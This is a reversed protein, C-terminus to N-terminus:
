FNILKMTAFGVTVIIAYAILSSPVGRTIFTGVTLYPKGFEDTMCIATVNPFGSTPLGMAASCLLAAAMILLRPHPEPLNSGIESVLPIVILAAVTHSVFTAMVLILLGFTLTVGFLSFHEVKVQIAKAITALLGSSAVAKGLATGGMALVVINWPYNNFDETSLLGSGFLLVIPLLSIIGMDGFVPTLRSALCWLLITGVTVATIFWQTLTFREDIVRIPVIRTNRSRCDFTVLLLVWILLVSLVCVPLAIVFWQGWSPPPSMAGIAVINQPSAIPSAMGGINSALAIGLILADSFESGKPLTRLLPQILSFCLVPAAVNSVWMSAFLAVAMITLLVKPPRTGAKSLIWTSLLKAIHYKSLAAALTFGGLLLLIVSNWQTSLIIKSADPASMRTGDDNKLVDLNVILLPVLLSTVFLPVAESAWLLSACVLLAFCNAQAPDSFPSVVLLVCFIALIVALKSASAWYSVATTEEEKNGAGEAKRELGIMDRWVTNREWVVHERLHVSLESRASEHTQNCVTSYLGVVTEIHANVGELTEPRFVYTREPLAELYEDKITTNLSKDFKKLAKKFGTRNLEIYSKLESLTTFVSIIRKRLVVRQESLYLLQPSMVAPNLSSRRELPAFDSDRGEDEGGTAPESQIAGEVSDRSHADTVYDTEGDTTANSKTVYQFLSSRRQIASTSSIEVQYEAVDNQVDQVEDYAREEQKKYFTDIKLLEADLAAVFVSSPDGSGGALLREQDGSRLSDRQLSYILRKLTSYAIYKNSWEPVANFQLSHSFKM